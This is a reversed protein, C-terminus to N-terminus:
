SAGGEQRAERMAKYVLVARTGKSVAHDLAKMESEDLMWQPVGYGTKTLFEFIQRPTKCGMDWALFLGRALGNWMAETISERAALQERLKREIKRCDDLRVYVLPGRITMRQIVADTLPTDSIVESM